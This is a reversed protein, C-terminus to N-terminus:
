EVEREGRASGQGDDGAQERHRGPLHHVGREPEDDREEADRPAQEDEPVLEDGEHEDEDVDTRDDHEDEEREHEGAGRDARVARM